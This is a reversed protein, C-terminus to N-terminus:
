LFVFLEILVICPLTLFHAVRVGGFSNIIDPAGLPDSYFFSWNSLQNSFVELFSILLVLILMRMNVM